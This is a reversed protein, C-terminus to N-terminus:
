KKKEWDNVQASLAYLRAYSEHREPAIKGAAVAAAYGSGGPFGCGGCNAGPLCARIETFRTDEKVAMVSSAVALGVACILGGVTVALIPILIEM